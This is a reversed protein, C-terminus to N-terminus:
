WYFRKTSKFLIAYNYYERKIRISNNTRNFILNKIDNYLKNSFFFDKRLQTSKMLWYLSKKYKLRSDLIVPCAKNIKKKGNDNKYLKLGVSPKLKELVEFFLFLPSIVFRKKLLFFSFYIFKEIKNKSFCWRCFFISLWKCKFIGEIYNYHRM